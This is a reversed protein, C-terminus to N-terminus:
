CVQCAELFLSQKTQSPSLCMRVGDGAMLSGDLRLGSALRSHSDSCTCIVTQAKTEIDTPSFIPHLPGLAGSGSVLQTCALCPATGEHNCGLRLDLVAFHVCNSICHDKPAPKGTSLGSKGSSDLPLTLCISRQLLPCSLPGSLPFLLNGLRGERGKM